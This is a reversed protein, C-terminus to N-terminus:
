DSHKKLIRMYVAHTEEAMRRWSYKKVQDLGKATMSERLDEDDIVRTITQAIADVDFPDFYVAADGLVEPLCSANSSIVPTGYAMAELPPLGFGEMLSPFVYAITQGYLWDREADSIYGTFHINHYGKDEAYRQNAETDPNMRGVLVLGLDPQTKIIEQHADMLRRINKYDPQQGVYMIFRQFPLHVYPKLDTKLVEGAEYIVSMKEDSIHTFEQYEKATNKSIAIVHDSIVAIRKWVFRGIQQKIHFILWNKDSNYTKLLTMDHMTTVRAGKYLLPQQPMCFHVLDPNLEDLFRKYGIQEAFSYNDFDAIKVTFRSSTPKWYDVDKARVLVTYENDFDIEQLYDLLKAVYTGTGSNIVRADIAIHM